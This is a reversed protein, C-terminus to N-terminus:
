ELLTLIEKGARAYLENHELAKKEKYLDRALWYLDFTQIKKEKAVSLILYNFAPHPQQYSCDFSSAKELHYLAKDPNFISFYYQAIKYHYQAHTPNRSLESELLSFAEKSRQDELLEQHKKLVRTARPSKSFSCLQPALSFDIPATILVPRSGRSRVTAAIHILNFQFLEFHTEMERPSRERASEIKLPPHDELKKSDLDYLFFKKTQPLFSFLGRYLGKELIQLNHQLNKQHEPTFIKEYFESSGQAIFVVQPLVKMKEIRQGIRHLGENPRAFTIINLHPASKKLIHGLRLAYDDGIVLVDYKGLNQPNDAFAQPSFHYPLTHKVEPTKYHLYTLGGGLLIVLVLCIKLLIKM